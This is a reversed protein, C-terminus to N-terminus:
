LGRLTHFLTHYSSMEHFVNFFVQQCEKGVMDLVEFFFIYGEVLSTDMIEKM